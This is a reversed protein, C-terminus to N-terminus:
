EPPLARNWIAMPQINQLLYCLRGASAREFSTHGTVADPLQEDATLRGDRRSSEQTRRLAPQLIDSLKEDAAAVIMADVGM